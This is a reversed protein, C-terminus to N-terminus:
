TGSPWLSWAKALVLAPSSWEHKAHTARALRCPAPTAFPQKAKLTMTGDMALFKELLLVAQM